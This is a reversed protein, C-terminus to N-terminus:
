PEEREGDALQLSDLTRICLDVSAMLDELTTSLSQIGRESIVNFLLKVNDCETTITLGTPVPTNDPVVANMIRRVSDRSRLEIELRAKASRSM